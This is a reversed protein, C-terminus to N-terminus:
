GGLILEGESEYGFRPDGSDPRGFRNSGPTGGLFGLEIFAWLGGFPLLTILWWWGSKNRDHWRKTQTALVVFLTLLFLAGGFGLWIGGFQLLLFAVVYALMAVVNILWYGARGIRGDFGFLKDIDMTVRRITFGAIRFWHGLAGVQLSMASLDVDSVARGRVKPRGASTTPM